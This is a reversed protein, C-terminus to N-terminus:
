TEDSPAIKALGKPGRTLTTFRVDCAGKRGAGRGEYEESGEGYVEGISVYAPDIIYGRDVSPMCDPNGNMLKVNGVYSDYEEVSWPITGIGELNYDVKSSTGANRTFTSVIDSRLQTGFVGYWSKVDGGLNFMSVLLANFAEEDFSAKLGSYISAAPTEFGATLGTPATNNIIAGLGATVGATTGPVDATNDQDGCLVAECDRGLERLAKESASEATVPVASKESEQEKTVAWERVLRMAQGQYEGLSPFKDVGTDTTNGEIHGTTSVAALTDLLVQPRKNHVPETPMLSKVPFNEAAIITALQKLDERNGIVSTDTTAM